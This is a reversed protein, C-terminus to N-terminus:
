TLNPNNTFCTLYLYTVSLYYNPLYVVNFSVWDKGPLNDVTKTKRGVSKLYSGVLTRLWNRGIPHGYASYKAITTAVQVEEEESMLTPQGAKPQMNPNKFRGRLTEFPIKYRKAAKRISMGRKLHALAATLDEPLYKLREKPHYVRGM